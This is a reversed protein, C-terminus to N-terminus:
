MFFVSISQVLSQDETDLKNILTSSQSTLAAGYALLRGDIDTAKVGKLHNKIQETRVRTKFTLEELPDEGDLPFKLKMVFATDANLMLWGETIADVLSDISDKQLERKSQSIKKADLWKNVDAVAMEKNIKSM